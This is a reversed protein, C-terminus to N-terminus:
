DILPETKPKSNEHKLPSSHYDLLGKLPSQAVVGLRIGTTLVAEALIDKYYYAISGTFHVPRTHTDYKMVNRVIFSKFSNLVLAYIMPNKVNEALFPSLGALFRNPFPQRYVRDIIQAPTLDYQKLFKDKLEDTMMGKLLDGVLLKGLVAGGGEDGLIYGLPSVNQVINQGDYFCSNSGTGLICAIGPERGCLGRAAALLDSYVEIVPVPMLSQIARRVIEVKEFACGAGYFYVANINMNLQPILEEALRNRIEDEAQFYPNIGSTQITLLSSGNDAVCWNTKTSGSDAILIM